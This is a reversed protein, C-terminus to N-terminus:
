GGSRDLWIWDRGCEAPEAWPGLGDHNKAAVRLMYARGADLGSVTASSGDFTMTAVTRPAGTDRPLINHALNPFCSDGHRKLRDAFKLHVIYETAGDVDDWDITVSGGGNKTVSLSGPADTPPTPTRVPPAAAVSFTTEPSWPGVGDINRAAVRVVYGDAVPLGYVATTGAARTRIRAPAAPVSDVTSAPFSGDSSRVQVIYSEARPVATWALNISTGFWQYASVSAPALLPEPAEAAVHVSVTTSATAGHNDTATWTLTTDGAETPTGSLTRAAIDVTLGAPPASATYTITGTGGSAAPLGISAAQGKVLRRDSVAALAVAPNIKLKGFCRRYDTRDGAPHVTYVTSLTLVRAPAADGTLSTLTRTAPDFAFGVVSLAHFDTEFRYTLDGDGGTAETLVESLQPQGITFEITPGDYGTRILVDDTFQLGNSYTATVITETRGVQKDGCQLMLPGPTEPQTTPTQGQGAAVNQEPTREVPEPTLTITGRTKEGKGVANIARVWVNYTEGATLNKYTVTTKSAKVTKVKGRGGDEPKLNVKYRKPDGGIEPAGWSVIVGDAAASLALGTVPGPVESDANNQAAGAVSPAALMAVALVAIALAKMRTTPLKIRMDCEQFYSSVRVNTVPVVAQLLQRNFEGHYEVGYADAATRFAAAAAVRCM